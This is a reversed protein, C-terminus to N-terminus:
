IRRAVAKILEILASVVRRVVGRGTELQRLREQRAQERATAREEPTPAQRGAAAAAAQAEEVGTVDQRIHGAGSSTGRPVHVHFSTAAANHAALYRLVRFSVENSLFDGGPGEVVVAQFTEAGARFTFGPGQVGAVMTQTIQRIAQARSISVDARGQRPLGLARLARDAEEVSPFRLTVEDGITPAQGSPLAAGAEAVTAGLDINPGAEIIAAAPMDLGPPGPIAELRDNNLRHVGVAYREVRVRGTPPTRPRESVTLVADAERLRPGLRTEVIGARFEGFHVPLVVSEVAAVHNQAVPVTSADLQLVAAGSPNFRGPRPEIQRRGAFEFPDFGTLLFRSVRAGADAGAGRRQEASRDFGVSTIGRAALRFEDAAADFLRRVDAVRAERGLQRMLGDLHRLPRYHSEEGLDGGALEGAASARRRRAADTAPRASATALDWLRAGAAQGFREADPQTTLGTHGGEFLSRAEVLAAEVVTQLIWVDQAGRVEPEWDSLGRVVDAGTRGSRVAPQFQGTPPGAAVLRSRGWMWVGGVDQPLASGTLTDREIRRGPATRLERELARAQPPWSEQEGPPLQDEKYGYKETLIALAAGADIPENGQLVQISTLWEGDRQIRLVTHAHGTGPPPHDWVLLDGVHLLRRLTPLDRIPRGNPGTYPRVLRELTASSVIAGSHTRGGRILDRIEETRPDDLATGLVWGGFEETRRHAVLWVHRLIVALDACDCPLQYATAVLNPPLNKRVWADTPGDIFRDHPLYAQSRAHLVFPRRREPPATPDTATAAEAAREGIVVDGSSAVFRPLEQFEQIWSEFTPFTEPRTFDRQIAPGEDRAPSAVARDAIAVGIPVATGRPQIRRQSVAAYGGAFRRGFFDRLMAEERGSFDSMLSPATVGGVGFITALAANHSRELLELIALEDARGTHGELLEHIMLAIVPATLVFATEGDVWRRTIERAKNDSDYDGETMGRNRLHRLYAHLEDDSYSQSGFLRPVAKWPRTILDWLFSGTWGLFGGQLQPVRLPAPRTTPAAGVGPTLARGLFRVADVERADTTSGIEIEDPVTDAMERQQVVHALEHALLLAGSPTEPRYRGSGFLVHRGITFAPAGLSSVADPVDDIHLRVRSFDHGLRSEMVTRTAPELPRGPSALVARIGHVTRKGGGAQDTRRDRAPRGGPRQGRTGSSETRARSTARESM